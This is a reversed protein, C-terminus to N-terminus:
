IRKLHLEYPSGIVVNNWVDESVSFVYCNSRSTLIFEKERYSEGFRNRRIKVTKEDFVIKENAVM